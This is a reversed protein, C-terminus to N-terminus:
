HITAGERELIAERIMINHALRQYYCIAERSVTTLLERKTTSLIEM